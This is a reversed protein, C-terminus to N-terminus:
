DNIRHSLEVFHNISEPNHMSDLNVAKEAPIGM